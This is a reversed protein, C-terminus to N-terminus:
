RATKSIRRHTARVPWSSVTTCYAFGSILGLILLTMGLVAQVNSCQKYMLCANHSSLVIGDSRDTKPPSGDM